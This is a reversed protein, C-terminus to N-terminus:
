FRCTFNIEFQNTGLVESENINVEFLDSFFLLDIQSYLWIGAFAAISINRLQYARNYNDYRYEILGPDTEKSYLEEKKNADISFYIISGIAAASLGTLTWAKLSSGQYLHGLGPFIISRILAQSVRDGIKQEYIRPVYVTDIRAASKENKQINIAYFDDKVKKFFSIIKPSIKTSDLTFTSDIKLIEVFSREANEDEALAFHSIGKLRYVEIIEKKLLREKQLLLRNAGNIVSSYEFKELNRKLSILSDQIHTKVTDKNETKQSPGNVFSLDANIGYNDRHVQAFALVSYILIYSISFFRM